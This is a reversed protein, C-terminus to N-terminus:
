NAQLCGILQLLAPMCVLRRREKSESELLRRAHLLKTEFNSREQICEDFKLQMKDLERQLRQAEVTTAQWQMHSEQIIDLFRRFEVNKRFM